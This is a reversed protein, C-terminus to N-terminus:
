EPKLNLNQSCRFLIPRNSGGAKNGIVLLSLSFLYWLFIFVDLWVTIKFGKRPELSRLIDM